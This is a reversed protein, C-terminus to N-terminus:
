HDLDGIAHLARLEHDRYVGVLINVFVEDSINLQV